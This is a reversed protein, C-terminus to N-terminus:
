IVDFSYSGAYKFEKSYENLYANLYKKGPESIQGKIVDELTERGTSSDHRKLHFLTMDKGGFLGAIVELKKRAGRMDFVSGSLATLHPHSALTKLTYTPFKGEPVQFEPYDIEPLLTQSELKKIYSESLGAAIAGKHIINLYRRSPLCSDDIFEPLGIYAWATVSETETELSVAIRDYAVGYSEMADMSALHEDECLYVMGEVRDDATGPEINGMGGEHRFWHQVNFRLKWGRLTAKQSTVPEVGKARLSILNINSGYGFYSFM